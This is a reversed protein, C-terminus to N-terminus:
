FMLYFNKEKWYDPTGKIGNMFTFGQDGAIFGKVRKKFSKCLMVATLNDSSVNRMAINM